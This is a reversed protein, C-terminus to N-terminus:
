RLVGVLFMDRWFPLNNMFNEIITKCYGSNQTSNSIDKRRFKKCKFNKFNIHIFGFFSTSVM